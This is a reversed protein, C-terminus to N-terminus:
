SNANVLLLTFTFKAHISANAKRLFSIHNITTKLIDRPLARGGFIFSYLKVRVSVVAHSVRRRANSLGGVLHFRSLLLSCFVCEDFLAYDSYNFLAKLLSQNFFPFWTPLLFQFILWFYNCRLVKAIVTLFYRSETTWIVQHIAHLTRSHSRTPANIRKRCFYRLTIFKM